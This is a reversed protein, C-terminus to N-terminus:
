EGGTVALPGLEDAHKEVMRGHALYAAESLSYRGDPLRVVVGRCEYDSLSRLVNVVRESLHRALDDARMPEAILSSLIRGEPRESGERLMRLVGYDLSIRQELDLESAIVYAGDAILQNAGASEASFISGPVVYLDRGLESAALATSFTGSRVGAECILISQSLAAIVRNRKPFAYRRPPTGWPELSIVAGKSRSRDFVDASSSPYVLDAGCGAVVISTGGADLAARGAASDCGMAGGSVVVIGSEAAVRGGLRAAALGYPTARRAGIISISRERLAEACGMGYILEPPRDLEDLGKPWLEDGPRLVWGESM